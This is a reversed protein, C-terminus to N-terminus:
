GEKRQQRRRRRGFMGLGLLGSGFLLLSAPEPVNVNITSNDSGAIGNSSIQYEATVSYPGSGADVTNGLSSTGIATFTASNLPTALAFIGNATDLYTSETVSWSPTITNETFSSLFTQVGTFSTIGSETVYVDLVDATGNSSVNISNSNLLSPTTLPPNGTGSVNNTDYSGFTGSFAANGSASAVTTIAGGNLGLGITIVDAHAAPGAAFGAVGIATAIVAAKLTSKTM